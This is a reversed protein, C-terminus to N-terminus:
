KYTTNYELGDYFTYILFPNSTAMRKQKEM